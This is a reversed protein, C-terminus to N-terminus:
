IKILLLVCIFKDEAPDKYMAVHQMYGQTLCTVKTISYTTCEEEFVRM